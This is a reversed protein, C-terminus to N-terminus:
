IQKDGFLSQLPNIICIRIFLFALIVPAAWITVIVAAITADLSIPTKLIDTYDKM